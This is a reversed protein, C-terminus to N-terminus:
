DSQCKASFPLTRGSNYAQVDDSPPSMASYLTNFRSLAKKVRDSPERGFYFTSLFVQIKRPVDRFKSVEFRGTSSQPFSNPSEAATVPM